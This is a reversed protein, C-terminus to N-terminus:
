IFLDEKKKKEKRKYIYINKKKKRCNIVNVCKSEMLLQLTIVKALLVIIRVLIIKMFSIVM